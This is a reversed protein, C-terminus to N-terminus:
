SDSGYFLRAIEGDADDFTDPVEFVGAAMGLRTGTPDVSVLKAVPRGSRTIIIEQTQQQEIAGVLQLLLSSAQEIDVTQM